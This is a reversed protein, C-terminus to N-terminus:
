HSLAPAAHQGVLMTAFTSAWLGYNAHMSVLVQELDAREFGGYYGPENLFHPSSNLLVTHSSLTPAQSAALLAATAGASHGVLAVEQLQLAQCIAVM